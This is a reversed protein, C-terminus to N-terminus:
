WAAPEPDYNRVVVVPVHYFCARTHAVVANLTDSNTVAALGDAEKM